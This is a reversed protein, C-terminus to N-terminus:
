DFYTFLKNRKVSSITTLAVLSMGWSCEVIFTIKNKNKMTGWVFLGFFVINIFSFILIFIGWPNKNDKEIVIFGYILNTVTLILFFGYAGVCHWFHSAYRSIPWQDKCCELHDDIANETNNTKEPALEVSQAESTSRCCGDLPNSPCFGVLPYVIIAFLEFGFLIWVYWEDDPRSNFEEFHLCMLNFSTCCTFGILFRHAWRDTSSAASSITPFEFKKKYGAEYLYYCLAIILIVSIIINGWVFSLQAMTTLLCRDIELVNSLM